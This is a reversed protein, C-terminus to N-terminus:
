DRCGVHLGRQCQSRRNWRRGDPLYGRQHDPENFHHFVMSIFVMDVCADPLPLLEGVARAYRVREASKKRAEALMKESPDVAMVRANFYEALATYYRGTGCGLDLIDSVANPVWRSIVDLWLALVAPSYRRGADYAAPM